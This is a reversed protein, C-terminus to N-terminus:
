SRQNRNTKLLYFGLALALAAQLHLAEGSPGLKGELVENVLPWNEM